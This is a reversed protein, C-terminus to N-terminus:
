YQNRSLEVIIYPVQECSEERQCHMIGVVKLTRGSKSQVHDGIAPVHCFVIPWSEWKYEDLNTVCHGRVM